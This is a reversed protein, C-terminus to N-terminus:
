MMGLQLRAAETMRSPDWPPDWVVDVVASTVGPVAKVKEQVEPPLSGAVPCMPSTLTMEIKVAGSDEIRISYILGLEHINVPIEPDYCTRLAEIVMGEIAQKDM